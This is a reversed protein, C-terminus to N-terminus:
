EFIDSASGLMKKRSSQLKRAVFENQLRMRMKNREERELIERAMSACHSVFYIKQFKLSM